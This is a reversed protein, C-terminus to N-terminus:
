CLVLYKPQNVTFFADKYAGNATVFLNVYNKSIRKLLLEKIQEAQADPVFKYRAYWFADSIVAKNEPLSLYRKWVNLKANLKQFQKREEEGLKTVAMEEKEELLVSMGKSVGFKSGQGYGM